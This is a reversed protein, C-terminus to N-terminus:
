KARIEKAVEEAASYLKESREQWGSILHWYGGVLGPQNWRKRFKIEHPGCIFRYRKAYWEGGMFM